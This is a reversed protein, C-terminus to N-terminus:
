IDIADKKFCGYVIWKPFKQPYSGVIYIFGSAFLLAALFGGFIAVTLPLDDRRYETSQEFTRYFEGEASLAYVRYYPERDDPDFKKACVSFETDGDCREVLRELGTSYKKYGNIIFVEEMQTTTLILDDEQIECSVFSLKYQEGSNEDIPKLCDAILWAGVGVIFVLMMVFVVIYEIPNYVHARFGGAEKELVSKEPINKNGHTVRYGTNVATLFESINESMTNFSVEKKDIYLSIDVSNGGKCNWGTVESYKFRHHIGFLNKKTFGTSDYVIYCNRWGLLLSIALLVFFGFCVTLGIHGDQGAAFWGFSLFVGGAIIGTWFMYKPLYVAKTDSVARRQYETFCFASLVAYVASLLILIIYNAM